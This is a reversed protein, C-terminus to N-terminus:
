SQWQAKLVPGGAGLVTLDKERFIIKLGKWGQARPIMRSSIEKPIRRITADPLAILIHAKGVRNEAVQFGGRLFLEKSLCETVHITTYGARRVLTICLKDILIPGKSLSGLFPVLLPAQKDFSGALIVQNLSLSTESSQAGFLSTFQFHIRGPGTQASINNTKNSIKLSDFYIDSWREVRSHVCQIPLNFQKSLVQSVFFDAWPGRVPVWLGILALLLILGSFLLVIKKM